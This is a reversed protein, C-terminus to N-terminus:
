NLSQYIENWHPSLLLLLVPSPCLHGLLGAHLLSPGFDGGGLLPCPHLLFWPGFFDVQLPLAQPYVVGGYLHAPVVGDVM